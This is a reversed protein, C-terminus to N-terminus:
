RPMLFSHPYGQMSTLWSRMNLVETYSYRERLSPLFAVLFALVFINQSQVSRRWLIQTSDHLQKSYTTYVCVLVNNEFYYVVWMYRVLSKTISHLVKLNLHLNRVSNLAVSGCSYNVYIVYELIGHVINCDWLLIWVNVNYLVLMWLLIYEIEEFGRWMKLCSLLHQKWFTTVHYLTLLMLYIHACVGYLCAIKSITSVAHTDIKTFAM